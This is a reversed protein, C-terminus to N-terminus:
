QCPPLPVVNCSCNSVESFRTCMAAISSDINTTSRLWHRTYNRIVHEIKCVFWLLSLFRMYKIHVFVPHMNKHQSRTLEVCAASHQGSIQCVNWVCTSHAPPTTNTVIDKCTVGLGSAPGRRLQALLASVARVRETVACIHRHTQLAWEDNNDRCRVLFGRYSGNGIVDYAKSCFFAKFAEYTVAEPLATTTM